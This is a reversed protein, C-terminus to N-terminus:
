LVAMSQRLLRQAHWIGFGCGMALVAAALQNSVLGSFMMPLFLVPISYKLSGSVAAISSPNGLFALLVKAAPLWCLTLVVEWTLGLWTTSPSTAIDPESTGDGSDGDSSSVPVSNNRSVASGIAIMSVIALTAVVGQVPLLLRSPTRGVVPRDGPAADRALRAKASPRCDWLLLVPSAAVCAAAASTGWMVLFHIVGLYAVVASVTTARSQASSSLPWLTAQVSLCLHVAVQLILLPRLAARSVSETGVIGGAACLHVFVDLLVAEFM